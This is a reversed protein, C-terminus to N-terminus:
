IPIERLEILQRSSVGFCPRMRLGWSDEEERRGGEKEMDCGGGVRGVAERRKGGSGRESREAGRGGGRTTWSRREKGTGVAGGRSAQRNM